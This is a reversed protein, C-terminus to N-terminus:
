AACTRRLWASRLHCDNPIGEEPSSGRVPPSRSRRLKQSKQHFSHQGSTITKDGATAYFQIAAFPHLVISNYPMNRSTKKEDFHHLILLFVVRETLWSVKDDWSVKEGMMRFVPYFGAVDYKRQCMSRHVLRM